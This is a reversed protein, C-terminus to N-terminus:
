KDCIWRWLSREKTPAIWIQLGNEACKNRIDFNHVRVDGTATM